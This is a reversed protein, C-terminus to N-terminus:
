RKYIKKTCIPCGVLFGHDCYAAAEAECMKKICEPEKCHCYKNGHPCISPDKNEKM